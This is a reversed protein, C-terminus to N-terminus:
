SWREDLLYGAVLMPGYLLAAIVAGYATAQLAFGVGETTAVQLWQTLCVASAVVGSGVMWLTRNRFREALGLGDGTSLISRDTTRDREIM